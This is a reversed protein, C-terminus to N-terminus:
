GYMKSEQANVGKNEREFKAHAEREEQQEKEYQALREMRGKLVGQDIRQKRRLVDAYNEAYREQERREKEFLERDKKWEMRRAEEFSVM